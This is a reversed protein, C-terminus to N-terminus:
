SKEPSNHLNKRPSWKEIMWIKGHHEMIGAITKMEIWNQCLYVAVVFGVLFGCVGAAIGIWM